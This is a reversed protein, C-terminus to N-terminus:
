GTSRVRMSASEVPDVGSVYNQFQEDWQDWHAAFDEGPRSLARRRRLTEDAELWLRISHPRGVSVVFSGCGEVIVDVGAPLVAGDVYLGATWDFRRLPTDEQSDLGPVVEELLVAMGATLGDWGSYFDDMHLTVVRRHAPWSAAIDEALSTKGTGSAGDILVLVPESSMIQQMVHDRVDGFEPLLSLRSGM